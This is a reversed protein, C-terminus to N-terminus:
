YVTYLAVTEEFMDPSQYGIYSHLRERNYFKEIYYYLGRKAENFTQFYYDGICEVKLTRFFSEACANDWCNGKRSMSQIFNNSRLLRKVDNSFYQLGQDSHFIIRKNITRKRIAKQLAESVLEAKLRPLVNWGVIKRSYLDLIVCLYLWGERTRIYSIDSVWKQNMKTAKFNQNLLNPVPKFNHSSNTTIMYKKSYRANIGNERMLKAVKNHGVKIGMRRLTKTIRPSGYRFKVDRQIEHIQILLAQNKTNPKRRRWKYYGSRTVEMMKAM